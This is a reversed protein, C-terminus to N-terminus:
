KKKSEKYQGLAGDRKGGFYCTIIVTIATLVFLINLLMDERATLLESGAGVLIFVVISSTFLVASIILSIHLTKNIKKGYESKKFKEGADKEMM